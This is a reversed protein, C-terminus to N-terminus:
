TEVSPNYEQPDLNFTWAVAERATKVTPPVRLFYEKYTGDSEPTSNTVRVMAVPEVAGVRKMYLTGFEDEHIKSNKSETLYKEVGFRDVLIRKIEANQESEIKAITIKEPEEIIEKPCTVGFWSYIDHDDAFSLAATSPHHLRGREDCSLIRPRESVLCVGEFFSYASANRGLELWINLEATEHRNFQEHELLFAYMPLWESSWSSFWIVNPILSSAESFDSPQGFRQERHHYGELPWNRDFTPRHESLFSRASKATSEDAFSDILHSPWHSLMHARPRVGSRASFEEATRRLTNRGSSGVDIVCSPAFTVINRNVSPRLIPPLLPQRNGYFVSRTWPEKVPLFRRLMHVSGVSGEAKGTFSLLSLLTRWADVKEKEGLALSHKLGLTFAGPKSSLNSVMFTAAIQWPSQCWIIKPNSLGFWAYLANVASRTSEQDIPTTSRSVASWLDVLGSLRTTEDVSLHGLKLRTIM